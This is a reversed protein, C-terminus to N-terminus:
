TLGVITLNALLVPSEGIENILLSSSSGSLLHSLLLDDVTVGNGVSMHASVLGAEEPSVRDHVLELVVPSDLGGDLQVTVDVIIHELEHSLVILGVTEGNRQKLVAGGNLSQPLGGLLVHVLEGLHDVGVVQHLENGVIVSLGVVLAM